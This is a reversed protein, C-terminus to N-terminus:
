IREGILVPMWGSRTMVQYYHSAPEVIVYVRPEEQEDRVLVARLGQRVAYWVGNDLALSAPVDVPEGGCGSWYGAEVTTLKTWGGVPLRRSEGRGCGWRVVLLRGEHWVPLCPTRSRFLFRLEKEGGRDHVRRGLGHREQLPLPVDGFPLAIGTLM